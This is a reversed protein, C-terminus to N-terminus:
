LVTVAEFSEGCQKKLSMCMGRSMCKERTAMITLFHIYKDFNADWSTVEGCGPFHKKPPRHPGGILIKMKSMVFDRIKYMQDFKELPHWRYFIRLFSINQTFVRDFNPAKVTYV